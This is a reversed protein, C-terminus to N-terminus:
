AQKEEVVGYEPEQEARTQEARGREAEEQEVEEAGEAQKEEEM